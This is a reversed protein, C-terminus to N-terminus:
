SLESAGETVLSSILSPDSGSRVTQGFAREENAWYKLWDSSGDRGATM